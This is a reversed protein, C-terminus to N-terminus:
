FPVGFEQCCECNARFAPVDDDPIVIEGLVLHKEFSYDVVVM